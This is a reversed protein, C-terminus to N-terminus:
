SAGSEGSVIVEGLAGRDVNKRDVLHLSVRVVGSGPVFILQVWSNPIEEAPWGDFTTARVTCPPSPAAAASSQAKAATSAFGVTLALAACKRMKM